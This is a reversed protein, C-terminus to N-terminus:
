SPSRERGGNREVYYAGQIEKVPRGVLRLETTGETARRTDRDPDDSDSRYVYRLVHRHEDREIAAMLSVSESGACSGQSPLRALGREDAIAPAVVTMLARLSIRWPFVAETGLSAFARIM